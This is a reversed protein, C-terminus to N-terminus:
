LLVVSKINIDKKIKNEVGNNYDYYLVNKKKKKKTLYM